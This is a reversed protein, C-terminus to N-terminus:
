GFSRRAEIENDYLRCGWYTLTHNDFYNLDSREVFFNQCANKFSTGKTKDLYSTGSRNGTANYGEYWIEYFREPYSKRVFETDPKLVLNKQIEKDLRNLIRRFESMYDIAPNEDYHEILRAYIWKLHDLEHINM